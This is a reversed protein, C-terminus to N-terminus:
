GLMEEERSENSDVAGRRREEKHVISADVMTSFVGLEKGAM